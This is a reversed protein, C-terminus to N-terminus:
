GYKSSLVKQIEKVSRSKLQTREKVAPGFILANTPCAKVCTPDGGCLDCKILEGSGSDKIAGFPCVGMCAKCTTCKDSDLLVVGDVVKLADFECVSACPAPNCHRCVNVDVVVGKSFRVDIRSLLPDLVGGKTMSCAYVCKLCGTCKGLVVDLVYKTM